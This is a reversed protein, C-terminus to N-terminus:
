KENWDDGIPAEGNPLKNADDVLKNAQANDANEQKEIANTKATTSNFLSKASASLIGILAKNFNLALIIAGFAILFAKDREWLDAVDTHLKAWLGQFFAKIKAGM